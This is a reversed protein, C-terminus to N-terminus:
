SQYHMKEVFLKRKSQKNLISLFNVCFSTPKVTKLLFRSPLPIMSFRRAHSVEHIMVKDANGRHCLAISQRRNILSYPKPATLCSKENKQAMLLPSLKPDLNATSINSFNMLIASNNMKIQDKSTEKKVACNNLEKDKNLKCANNYFETNRM